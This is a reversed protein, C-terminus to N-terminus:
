IFIRFSKGASIPFTELFLAAKSDVKSSGQKRHNM